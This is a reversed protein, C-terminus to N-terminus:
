RTILEIGYLAVEIYSTNTGAAATTEGEPLVIDIKNSVEKRVVFPTALDYANEGVPRQSDTETVLASIQEEVVKKGDHQIRIKGCLLAGEFASAKSNYAVKKENSTATAATVAKVSIKDFACTTNLKTGAFDSVGNILRTNDTILEQTGSKGSFPLRILKCTSVARLAGSRLM